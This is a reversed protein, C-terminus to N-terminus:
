SGAELLHFSFSPPFFHRSFLPHFHGFPFSSIGLTWAEDYGGLRIELRDQTVHQSLLFRLSKARTLNTLPLQPLKQGESM